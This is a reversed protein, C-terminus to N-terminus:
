NKVIFDLLHGFEVPFDVKKDFSKNDIVIVRSEEENMKLLYIEGMEIDQYIFRYNSDAKIYDKELPQFSPEPGVTLLGVTYGKENNFVSYLLTNKDIALPNAEQNYYYDQKPLDKFPEFVQYQMNKDYAFLKGTDSLVYAKEDNSFIPYLDIAKKDPLEYQVKQNGLDIIGIGSNEYEGEENVQGSTGYIIKNSFGLLPTWKPANGYETEFSTELSYNSISTNFENTKVNLNQEGTKHSVLTQFLIDEGYHKIHDIGVEYDFYDLIVKKFRKEAIDYTFYYNDITAEGFFSVFLQNINSPNQHISMRGFDNDKIEYDRLIEGSESVEKIITNEQSTRSDAPYYLLYNRGSASPKPNFNGIGNVLNKQSENDDKIILYVVLFVLILGMTTILKYKTKM